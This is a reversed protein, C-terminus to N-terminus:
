FGKYFNIAQRKKNLPVKKPILFDLTKTGPQPLLLSPRKRRKKLRTPSFGAVNTLGVAKHRVWRDSMTEKGAERNKSKKPSPITLSL